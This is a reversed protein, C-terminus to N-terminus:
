GVIQMLHLHRNLSFFIASIKGIISITLSRHNQSFSLDHGYSQLVLSYSSVSKPFLPVIAFYYIEPVNVFCKLFLLFFLVKPLFTVKDM